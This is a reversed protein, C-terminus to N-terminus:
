WFDNHVIFIPIRGMPSNITIDQVKDDDLLVEVLGFGVTYRVLIKALEDRDKPRL